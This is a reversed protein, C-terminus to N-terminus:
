LNYNLPILKAIHDCYSYAYGLARGVDRVVARAAMTGFTIIQAVRDKGYKEAVYSIVEDRRYDAFDLDIDPLSVREPNLFREFLLNYQLPNINTIKLLYAVLSGGVSGRGPGVVIRKQKAWNVFDQVILFYSAFGTQRIVGLEFTLRPMTKPNDKLKPRGELGKLCLEELYDDANTGDPLPFVPLKIEGLKLEFNCQEQIRQTNLIAEPIDSFLETMEQTSKLSFDDAALTLREPDDPRSGTNILMLIDQAEADEPRLYHSDATAVVPIELKGSLEILGQNTTKQLPINSHRQLEFYFNGKGFIEQYLLATIEAEKKKKAQLLRPIKGNLCGSLAILGEAHKKLFEEDVRPKYYFGRLHGQTLIAVLNEYGKQNKVFRSSDIFSPIVKVEDKVGYKVLEAKM